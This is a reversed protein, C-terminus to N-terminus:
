RGSAAHEPNQVWGSIGKFTVSIEVVKWHGGPVDQSARLVGLRGFLIGLVEGISWFLPRLAGQLTGFDWGGGNKYFFRQGRYFRM